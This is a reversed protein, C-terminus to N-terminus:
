GLFKLKWGTSEHGYLPVTRPSLSEALIMESEIAEYEKDGFDQLKGDRFVKCTEQPPGQLNARLLKEAFEVNDNTM